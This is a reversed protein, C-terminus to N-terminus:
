FGLLEVVGGWFGMPNQIKTYFNPNKGVRIQMAVVRTKMGNLKNM